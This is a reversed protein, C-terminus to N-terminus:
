GKQPGVGTYSWVGLSGGLPHNRWSRSQAPGSGEAASGEGESARIGQAQTGCGIPLAHGVCAELAGHMYQMVRGGAAGADDRVVRIPEEHIRLRVVGLSAIWIPQFM